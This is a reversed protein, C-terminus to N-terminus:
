YTQISFFTRFDTSGHKTIRINKNLSVGDYYNICATITSILKNLVHLAPVVAKDCRQVLIVVLVLYAYLGNGSIM